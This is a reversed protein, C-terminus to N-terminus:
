IQRLVSMYSWLDNTKSNMECKSKKNKWRSRGFLEFKIFEIWRRFYSRAFLGGYGYAPSIVNAIKDLGSFFIRKFWIMSRIISINGIILDPRLLHFWEIRCLKDLHFQKLFKRFSKELREIPLLFNYIWNTYSNTIVILKFRRCSSLLNSAPAGHTQKLKCCM